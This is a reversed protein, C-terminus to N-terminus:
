RISLIQTTYNLNPGTLKAIYTGESLYLDTVTIISNVPKKDARYVLRGLNDFLCITVTSLMDSSLKFHIESVFPNPYVQVQVLSTNLPITPQNSQIFGQGVFFSSTKFNGIVSIQGISQNVRYGNFLMTNKGQTSLTQHHLRQSYIKGLISFCFLFVYLNRM